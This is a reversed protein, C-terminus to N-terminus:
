CCSGCGRPNDRAHLRFPRESQRFEFVVVVGVWECRVRIPAPVAPQEALSAAPAELLEAADLSDFDFAALSADFM